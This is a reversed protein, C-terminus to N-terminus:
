EDREEGGYWRRFTRWEQIITRAADLVLWILVPLILTVTFVVRAIEILVEEYGPPRFREFLLQSQWYPLPTWGALFLAEEVLLLLPKSLKSIHQRWGTESVHRLRRRGRLAEVP